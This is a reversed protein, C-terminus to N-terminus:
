LNAKLNASPDLEVTPIQHPQILHEKEEGSGEM